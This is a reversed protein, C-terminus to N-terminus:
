SKEQWNRVEYDEKTENEYKIVHSQGCVFCIAKDNLKYSGDDRLPKVAEEECALCKAIWAKFYNSRIVLAQSEMNIGFKENLNESLNSM